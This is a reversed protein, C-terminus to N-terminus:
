WESYLDKPTSTAPRIEGSRPINKMQQSVKAKAKISQKPTSPVALDSTANNENPGTKNNNDGQLLYAHDPIAQRDM